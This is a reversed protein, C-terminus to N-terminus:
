GHLKLYNQPMRIFITISRLRRSILKDKELYYKLQIM